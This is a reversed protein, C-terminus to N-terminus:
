LWRRVQTKYELYAEGFVREMAKEEFPIYWRDTIVLFSIAIVIASIDGLMIAIGFLATVFGVYMPNRSFKFIGDTVLVNPDDFTEINTEKKEFVQSGHIAIGIGVIFPVAGILSLPFSLWQYVPYFWWLVLMLVICILFLVPPIIKQMVIEKSFSDILYVM